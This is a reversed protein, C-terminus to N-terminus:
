AANWTRAKNNIVSSGPALALGLVSILLYSNDVAFFGVCPWAGVYAAIALRLPTPEKQALRFLRLWLLTFAAIYILLGFFGSSVLMNLYTNDIYIGKTILYSARIGPGFFVFYPNEFVYKLFIFAENYRTYVSQDSTIHSFLERTIGSIIPAGFYLFLGFFLSFIPTYKAFRRFYYFFVIFLCIMVFMVYGSRTFSFYELVSLSIFLLSYSIRSLVGQTKLLLWLVAGSIFAIFFGYSGIETFISIPRTLGYFMYNGSGVLRMYSLMFGSYGGISQYMATCIAIFSFLIIFINSLRKPLQIASGAVLAVLFYYLTPTVALLIADKMNLNDKKILLASALASLFCLLFLSSWVVAIPDRLIKGRYIIFLIIVGLFVVLPIHVSLPKAGFVALQFMWILGSFFLCSWLTLFLINLFEKIGFRGRVRENYVNKYIGLPLSKEKSTSM